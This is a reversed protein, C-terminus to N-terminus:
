QMQGSLDKGDFDVLAVAADVYEQVQEMTAATWGWMIIVPRDRPVDSRTEMGMLTCLASVYVPSVETPTSTPARTPSESRQCAALVLSFFLFYLPIRKM